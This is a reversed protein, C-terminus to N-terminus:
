LTVGTLKTELVELGADLLSALNKNMGAWEVGNKAKVSAPRIIDVALGADNNKVSDVRWVGTYDQGSRPPNRHLKVLMGNRLIRPKVGSNEKRLRALRAPVDHHPVIVPAPDLAIGYNESIVLVAKNESLKGPQLGVLKGAKEKAKKHKFLRKGNKVESVRQRLHVVSRPDEPAGDIHAVRWQNQELAAGSQDSPVHQVVRMEALRAAIQNKLVPDLDKLQVDARRKGNQDERESKSFLGTKMLLSIESTTKRRKLLAQWIAGKENEKQGRIIGPLYHHTVALTAADLAHHLHTLGRIETKTKGECDPCAQVLCGLLRWSKRTEGTVQGPISTIRVTTEGTTPDVFRKELQRASLRNLHSTKTLAGQTFGHDKSEYDEVLMLKKRGGQRRADDPYTKPNAVKLKDVFSKYQAPTLFRSDEAMDKIFRVGTRKGKLKNVWDFTLVLSDLSNTPRDAYPIVHERELSRLSMADYKKGTFPCKWDLDMAIRAKRILSGNVALDPAHKELYTVASKFSSLRKTLEGSMEKATLGSYEQLDRAVEVVIDSIRNASGEAYEEIIDDVLRLLIKLRHRILHNNTLDDIPRDREAKLIDSSRYLPGGVEAPHRDSSLVFEVTEVMVERAYPARGTLSKPAFSRGLCHEFSPFGPYKKKQDVEFFEDITESLESSDCKEIVCQALMWRLTVPRRKKWRGMARHQSVEPLHKWFPELAKSDPGVGHFLALAPDLVLADASDPHIEFYAKCNTTQAGTIEEVAKRLETATLRGRARMVADVGQRQEMSLPAGNSRLNALIMAWRFELFERTAKNPVKEGSIPCTGIIRNDFRPILQGFLLGGFYRRPLEISPVPITKWAQKGESKSNESAVLTEIFKDDLKPLFGVHRNLIVLVEARVVKRPFAANLTKYPNESSLRGEKLDLGLVECITEAMTSTEHEEMLMLAAKEKETDESDNGERAWRSNGDYGRNHAYWRLVHWLELWSLTPAEDQVARAALAHPAHHGPGNLESKSLVGLHLLLDKM